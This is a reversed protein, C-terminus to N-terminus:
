LCNINFIDFAVSYKLVFQIAFVVIMCQYNKKTKTPYIYNYNFVPKKVSFITTRGKNRSFVNDILLILICILFLQM